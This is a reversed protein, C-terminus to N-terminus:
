VRPLPLIVLYIPHAVSVVISTSPNLRHVIPTTTGTHRTRVKETTSLGGHHRAPRDETVLADSHSEDVHHADEKEGSHSLSILSESVSERVLHECVSQYSLAPNALTLTKVLDAYRPLLSTRLQLIKDVDTRAYNAPLGAHLRNIEALALPITQDKKQRYARIRTLRNSYVAPNTNAFLDDKFAQMLVSGRRPNALVAASGLMRDRLLPVSVLSQVVFGYLKKDPAEWELM